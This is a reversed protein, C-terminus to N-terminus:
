RYGIIEGMNFSFSTQGTQKYITQARQAANLQAQNSLFRSADVPKGAFGDPTLGTTARTYQQDLTTGAGHRSYYHAGSTGGEMKALQQSANTEIRSATNEPNRAGKNGFNFGKFDDEIKTRTKLASNNSSLRPTLMVLALGELVERPHNRIYHQASMEQITTDSCFVADAKLLKVDYENLGYENAVLDIFEWLEKVGKRYPIFWNNDPNNYYKMADNYYEDIEAKVEEEPIILLFVM